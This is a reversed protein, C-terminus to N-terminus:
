LILLHFHFFFGVNDLLLESMRVLLKRILLSTLISSSKEGVCIYM